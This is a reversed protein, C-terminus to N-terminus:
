LRKAMQTSTVEFGMREYLAQAGPNDGFVQLGVRVVGLERCVQEAAQMISTAYGRRRLDHRVELDFGFASLGESTERFGLWLMGVQEGLSDDVATWLRQGESDLGDPLLRGFDEAAKADAEEPTGSGSSLIAEAYGREAGERYAAFQERTMPVLRVTPASTDSTM